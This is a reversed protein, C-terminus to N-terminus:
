AVLGAYCLTALAAYRIRSTRLYRWCAWALWPLWAWALTQALEGDLYTNVFRYPAYLYAAAALFGGWRGWVDRGFVHMGAVSALVGAGVAAKLADVFGLGLLHFAEALYYLLPAYFI